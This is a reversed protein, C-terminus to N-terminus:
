TKKGIIKQVSGKTEEISRTLYIGIVALNLFLISSLFSMFVIASAWGSVNIYGLLKAVVVGGAVFMFLVSLLFGFMSSYILPKYSYTTIYDIAFEIKKKLNFGSTGFKRLGQEMPTYEKKIGFNHMIKIHKFKNANSLYIDVAKRSIIRYLGEEVPYDENIMFSFLKWYIKSFFKSVLSEPHKNEYYSCVVDIDNNKHIKSFMAFMEHLPDTMDCTVVYVYDGSSERLGETIATDVGFNRILKYGKVFSNKKSINKIKEWSEDTSYDDILIIEYDHTIDKINKECQNTLEDLTEFANYVPIIISVKASSM